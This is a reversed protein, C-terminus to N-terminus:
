FTWFSRTPRRTSFVLFFSNKDTRFWGFLLNPDHWSSIIGGKMSSDIAEELAEWARPSSVALSFSIFYSFKLLLSDM